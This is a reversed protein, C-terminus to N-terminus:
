FSIIYSSIQDHRGIQGIYKQMWIVDNKGVHLNNEIKEALHDSNNHALAASLILRSSKQFLISEDVSDVWSFM